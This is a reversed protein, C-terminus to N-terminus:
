SVMCRGFGRDISGKNLVTADEIDYGSYSMVAIVANQGGPVQWARVFVFLSACSCLLFSILQLSLFKLVAIQSSTLISLTLLFNIRASHSCQCHPVLAPTCAHPTPHLRPALHRGSLAALPHHQWATPTRVRHMPFIGTRELKVSRARRECARLAWKRGVSQSLVSKNCHVGAGRTQVVVQVQCAEGLAM